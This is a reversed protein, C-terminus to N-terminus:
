MASAALCPSASGASGRYKMFADLLRSFGPSVMTAGAPLALDDVFPFQGDDDAPAGLRDAFRIRQPM